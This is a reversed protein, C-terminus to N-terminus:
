DDNTINEVLGPLLKTLISGNKNMASCMRVSPGTKGYESVHILLMEGGRATHLKDFLEDLPDIAIADYRDDAM